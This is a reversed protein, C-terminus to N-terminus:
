HAQTLNCHPSYFYIECLLLFKNFSNIWTLFKMIHKTESSKKLFTNWSKVSKLFKVTFSSKIHNISLYFHLNELHLPHCGILPCCIKKQISDINLNHKILIVFKYIFKHCWQVCIHWIWKLKHLIQNLRFSITSLRWCFIM